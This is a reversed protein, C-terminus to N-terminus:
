TRQPDLLGPLDHVVIRRAAPDVERLLPGATPILRQSGDGAEVVLVDHAGADWLERVVGVARGEPTEVRCGVLQYWYFEGEPLAALENEEAVVWRGRLAEAADRDLVGRLRLRVEGSRGERGGEIERVPADPDDRGRGPDALRVRAVRLLNEPGDGLWRVRLEGRVGHAGVVRGLV